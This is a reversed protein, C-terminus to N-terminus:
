IKRRFLEERRVFAGFVGGSRAVNRGPSPISVRLEDDLRIRVPALLLGPLRYVFAAALRFM